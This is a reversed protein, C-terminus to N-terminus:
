QLFVPPPQWAGRSPIKGVWPDFDGVNCASETYGSGGPFGMYLILLTYINIGIEWDDWEEREEKTDM